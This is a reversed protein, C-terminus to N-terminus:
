LTSISVAETSVRLASVSTSRMVTSSSSRRQSVSNTSSRIASPRLHGLAGGRGVSPARGARGGRREDARQLGEQSAHAGEVVVVQPLPVRAIEDPLVVAAERQERVEVGLHLAHAVLLVGHQEGFGFVQEGLEDSAVVGGEDVLLHAVAEVAEHDVLELVGRLALPLVEQRQQVVGHRLRGGRRHHQHAVDLLRDVAPPAAVPPDEACPGGLRQARVVRLHHVQAFVPARQGRHHREVVRRERADDLAVVALQVAREVLRRRAALHAGRRGLGQAVREGLPGGHDLTDAAEDVGSETGGVDEHQHAAGGVAGLDGGLQEVELLAVGLLAVAEVHHRLLREHHAAGGHAGEDRRGQAQGEVGGVLQM